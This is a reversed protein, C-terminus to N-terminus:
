QRVEKRMLLLDPLAFLGTCVMGITLLLSSGIMWDERGAFQGVAILMSIVALGASFQKISIRIKFTRIALVLQFLFTLVQTILCAAAAGYPGYIPIVVINIAISTIVGILAIYNLLKLSGNATLLTGFVYTGAMPIFSFLLLSLVQGSAVVHQDYLLDMIAIGHYHGVLALSFAPFVLLKTSLIALPRIDDKQKLMRSFMPLLLVAFLYGIMNAADLLRFAQAYIGAHLAGDPLMRELLVSDIRGYITMLLVLLAFPFSQKLVISFIRADWRTHFPGGNHLVVALAVLATIIFAGTQLQVFWEIRFPTTIFGGWLLISCAVILLTRDLISILSDLKFLQLGAINSRLYLIFSALFQNFCLLGLMAMQMSSYGFILGVLLSLVGYGLALLLRLLVMRTFYKGLLHTHQSINRVNYNTIGVDLFINLILSLNFLAFYSGYTESGVQNQVARDIGLVWFPKVLLNAVVIFILNSLFKQQM